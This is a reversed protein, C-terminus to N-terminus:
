YMWASLDPCTHAGMACLAYSVFASHTFLYVTNLMAIAAMAVYPVLVNFRVRHM